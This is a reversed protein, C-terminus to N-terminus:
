LHEIHSSKTISCVHVRYDLENWVTQIMDGTNTNIATWIRCGKGSYLCVRDLSVTCVAKSHFQVGVIRQIVIHTYIYIYIYIYVCVYIYIYIYVCIYVYMWVAFKITRFKEEWLVIVINAEYSYMNQVSWWKTINKDRRKFAYEFRFKCCPYTVKILLM